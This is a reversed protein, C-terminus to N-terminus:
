GNKCYIGELERIEREISFNKFVYRRAQEALKERLTVDSVLRKIAQSLALVDFCPVVIGTEDNKVIENVGPADFVVCAKQHMMADILALPCGERRSPMVFVDIENLFNTINDIWGKFVIHEEIGLSKTLQKLNEKERGESGIIFKVPLKEKACFVAAQILLDVGKDFTLRSVSAVIIESKEQSSTRKILKEQDIALVGLPVTCVSQPDVGGASIVENKLDNSVTITKLFHRRIFLNILRYCVSKLWGVGTVHDWIFKGEVSSIRSLSENSFTTIYSLIDSHLFFSHIIEPDIEKWIKKLERITGLPDKSFSPVIRIDKFDSGEKILSDRM